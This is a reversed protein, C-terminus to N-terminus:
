NAAAAIGVGVICLTIPFGVWWWITKGANFRRRQVTTTSKVNGVKDDSDFLFNIYQEETGRGKGLPRGIYYYTYVYGGNKADSVKDPKGFEFEIDNINEGTYKRKLDPETSVYRKSTVTSVICSNLSFLCISLIVIIVKNM